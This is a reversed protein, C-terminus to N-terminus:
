RGYDSIHTRGGRGFAYKIGAHVLRPSGIQIGRTRDVIYIENGLNKVTVFATTGSNGIKQNLSANWITHADLRGRQGDESAIATNAFDAFQSGMHVAELQVDSGRWAYGAATTLLHEPAYPQRNGATSGAVIADDVVQRFATTQEARPLWTYATQAYIGSPHRLRGSIEAGAFLAEGRALPTSGGAISGVAILKEFDNRFLSVQIESGEVPGVRTGVEWNTSEEPGVDTATGTSNIIDETRPPAFGRHVGGFVMVASSPAWTAGLSPIWADLEDSGELGNPLRNRRTSRVYEHRIGPSVTWRGVDIRNVLFASYARTTRLNDEAVTGTRATPSGGNVQKRDQREFHGKIGAQLESSVGAASYPVRVRPEIGWTTYERLRGQVSQITDPDVGVGALRASAVGAGGQGDTTTSSQRWWDRDFSSVYLNTTMVASRSVNLNHTASAGYRRIEFSDNKFPNYRPGYNDLEAQTLGSYTLTSSERFHNARLTLSRFPVAKLNLDELRSDMNDRAGDGEKHTYDLLLGHGGFRVRGAAYDRSGATGSVHGGLQPPPVPTIYNILGGITQPGFLIQAPGKLLEILEFREIPPHYYSANDGYPAYALPVGDELLTVKTSRTPNLGRVGINPRLGLGEEDRVTLGPIKRLAENTTFPRSRELATADLVSASGPIARLNSREGVVDVRPMVYVTDLAAGPPVDEAHLRDALFLLPAVLCVVAASRTCARAMAFCIPNKTNM